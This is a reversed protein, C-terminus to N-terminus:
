KRRFEEFWNEALVLQPSRAEETKPDEEVPLAIVFGSGDPMVDFAPPWGFLLAMQLDPRVFLVRPTGLRLGEGADVTVAVVSDGQAWFLESGNASWRPWSGGDASAQWKGTGAPFRKVVVEERGSEDSVYAIWRGDPSIRAAREGSRPTDMLRQPALGGDPSAASLDAYYIDPPANVDTWGTWTLWRGDPSASSQVGPFLTASTSGDVEVVRVELEAPSNGVSYYIRRGDASWSPFHERGDEFTVRTHTGRVRDLIWIDADEDVVHQVALRTGDRSISFFPWTPLPVSIKEVVKGARDVVAYQLPPDGQAGLGYLLSGDNAPSPSFGDSVVLFPEGTTELKELSFPVAWIGAGDPERQFLLHGSASWRPARFQQGEVHILRRRKGDAFLDVADYTAKLRHVTFVLGRGDPLASVQHFDTEAARDMDVLVQRDGGRDSVTFIAGYGTCFVVRGDPLWAAGGIEDMAEPLECLLSREGGAAPVKWLREAVAFGIWQEDPSWFPCAAGRTGDLTRPELRDLERVRLMDDEVFAVRRGSPSLAWWTTAGADLSQLPLTFKRAAPAPPSPPRRLSWGAAAGLLLAAVAALVIPLRSARTSAPAPPAEGRDGAIVEDILLRADGIDRLRRRPDRELCRRLLRRIRPATDAPLLTWDPDTKLVAALTDSVTEGTFLRTGTLMEYLV